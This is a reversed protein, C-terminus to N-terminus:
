WNASCRKITAELCQVSVREKSHDCQKTCISWLWWLNTLFHFGKRILHRSISLCSVKKNERRAFTVYERFHIRRLFFIFGHLKFPNMSFMVGSQNLKFHRTKLNGAPLIEFNALSMIEHFSLVSIITNRPM